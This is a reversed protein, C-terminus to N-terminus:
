ASFGARAPSGPSELYSGQTAFQTSYEEQVLPECLKLLRDRDRLKRLLNELKAAVEGANVPELVIRVSM